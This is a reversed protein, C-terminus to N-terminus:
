LSIRSCHLREKLIFRVTQFMFLLTIVERFIMLHFRITACKQQRSHIVKQRSILLLGFDLCVLLKAVASLDCISVNFGGNWKEGLKIKVCRSGDVLSRQCIEPVKPVFHTGSWVAYAVLINLFIHLKGLLVLDSNRRHKTVKFDVLLVGEVQNMDALESLFVSQYSITSMFCIKRPVSQRPSQCSRTGLEWM